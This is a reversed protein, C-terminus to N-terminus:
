IWKRWRFIALPIITTLIILGWGWEYGWVWDYEPMNKFNMGYIGAILVPPIGVVSAIAMVKMVNNQAINIFGLTADLLFQTKDNLHTDFESVSAIDQRLMELRGHLETPMWPARSEVYPVIRAAGTQTDRIHSILDGLRGLEGLIRKLEADENKRGGAGKATGMAFIVHSIKELEDRVYELGDAQRDVIAEMLGLFIHPATTASTERTVLREGYLDFIRSPAFRITVLREEHLVFGISVGVPTTGHDVMNIIPMNMYLVGHRTALRSSLEIESIEAQSPLSLGTAAEVRDLEERTANLLDIWAAQAM